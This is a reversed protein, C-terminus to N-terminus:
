TDAIYLLYWLTHVVAIGRCSECCGNWLACAYVQSVQPVGLPEHSAVALLHAVDGVPPLPEHPVFAAPGYAVSTGDFPARFFRGQGHMLGPRADLVVVLTAPEELM